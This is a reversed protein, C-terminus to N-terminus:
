PAELCSSRRTMARASDCRRAPLPCGNASEPWCSSSAWVGMRGVLTRRVHVLALLGEQVPDALQPCPYPGPRRAAFSHAQRQLEANGNEDEAEENQGHDALPRLDLVLTDVEM